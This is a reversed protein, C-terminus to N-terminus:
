RNGRGPLFIQFGVSVGLGSIGSKADIDAKSYTYGLKAELAVSRTIFHNYGGAIGLVVSVPEDNDNNKTHSGGIGAVGEGFWRGTPTAGEPFYYRIMPTISYNVSSGGDYANLGLGVAAGLAINDKVFYAASPNVNISFTETDFNYGTSGLSGGVM